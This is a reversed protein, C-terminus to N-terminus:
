QKPFTITFAAGPQPRAELSGRLQEALTSVLQLGLTAPDNVDIGAPLGVGDDAVTLKLMNGPASEIRVTMEGARGDPFAYKLANTLLENIILGLPVAKEIDVIAGDTNIDVALRVRESSVGYAFFLESALDHVYQEIDIRALDKAQYLREHILAMSHIRHRGERFMERAQEDTLAESQLSLLSSVVQLNNKVRHFLERLLSEKERLAAQIQLDVKKRETIDEALGDVMQQGSATTVIVEEVLFWREGGPFPVRVERAPSMVSKDLPSKDTVMGAAFERAFVDQAAELSDAGLLRLFPANCELLRGGPEARFVGLNIRGLLHDLRVQLDNARREAEGRRLGERVSSLLRAYHEPSKVIYDDLGSKMAEVAVEQTGTATFIIVPRYPFRRKVARLAALGDGWQLQFDTIVLNFRGTELARDFQEPAAAQEVEIGPFERELQRTIIEMDDPDDYVLLIHLKEDAM